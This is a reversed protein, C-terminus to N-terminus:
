DHLERLLIEEDKLYTESQNKPGSMLETIVTVATCIAVLSLYVVPMMTALLIVYLVFKITDVM